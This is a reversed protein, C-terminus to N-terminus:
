YTNLLMGFTHKLQFFGYTYIYLELEHVGLVVPVFLYIAHVLRLTHKM